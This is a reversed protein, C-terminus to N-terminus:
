FAWAVDIFLVRGPEPVPAGTFPNRANLHDHYEEDLLNLVGGRITVGNPLGYGARLDVTQYGDSEGENRSVSVETQKGIANGTAELYFRGLPEEYRLGLSGKLPAVGIAPEDLEDDRGYLYSGTVSATLLEGLGFVASADVGYFTAEGNVYQFVTPPSLPLRTPLTTPAITVYDQINRAFAGFHLQVNSYRGDIWVDGQTSREPELQPDGMFEAAFQAKSAPVRDSYRESADATRVASGVGLAVVWNQDVNLSATLAGSLNTESAELDTGSPNNATFFTSVEGAPADARVVDVRVTGSVSWVGDRWGLRAFTGADTITADPWMRDVISGGADLMNGPPGCPLAADPSRGISRTADRNASYVDGGVEASWPGGLSLNAAARGGLVTIESDVGVSLACAPMRGAMDMATPKGRNSMTHDVRNRYARVELDRLTGEESSWEFAALANPAEFSEATLLRGPYDIPGQDQYGGGVILRGGSGVDFAVKGRAEWSEFDGPVVEGNGAEYDDGQRWAADFSYGVTGNRGYVGGSTESAQLNSDYGAAVSGRPRSDVDPFEQTEVRIASLNGAGWTLAYPGKIVEISRVASPDLHTLPSDMRAPGAPFLRTGDLYTGVETERLGRVVPDLGLPGRRVASVGEMSRLLEGADKPNAERVERDELTAAPTLDPRLVSVNIGAVDIPRTELTFNVTVTGGDSVDVTQSGTRHGLAQALITRTGTPVVLVYDGNARVATWGQAGQWQVAAFPIVQGEAGLVRGVVRGTQA